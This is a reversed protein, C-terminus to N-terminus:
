PGMAILLLLVGTIASEALMVTALWRSEKGVRGLANITAYLLMGLSTPVVVTIYPGGTLLLTGGLVLGFFAVLEAAIHAAGYSLLSGKGHSAWELSWWGLIGFGAILEYIGVLDWEIGTM